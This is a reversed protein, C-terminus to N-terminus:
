LFRGPKTAWQALYDFIASGIGEFEPSVPAFEHTSGLCAFYEKDASVANEYTIEMNVFEHSASNGQCILPVRIHKVNERTSYPLFDEKIGWIHCDDYGFDDSFRVEGSLLQNVTTLSSGRHYYESRISDPRLRNTYVIEETITGDPHLLIRPKETRGLLRSDMIFPKNNSSGSGGGPILIPEDDLFKGKGQRILDRREKAYDLLDQYLRIQAKQYARIFDDSYRSAGPAYGNAPDFIDLEPIRRYSGDLVRVGPDLAMVSMIGYNGDLLMLGDAPTLPEIEPFPALRDTYKTFRDTGNEAIYQYLSLLCGGQSHGMLIVKEAGTRKKVERIATNMAHMQARLDNGGAAVGAGIFGRKAMAKMPLFNLYNASHMAIVAIKTKKSKKEPRWITMQIGGMGAYGGELGLYEGSIGCKEM